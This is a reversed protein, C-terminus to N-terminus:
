IQKKTDNRNVHFSESTEGLFSLSIKEEAADNEAAVSESAALGRQLSKQQRKRGDLNLQLRSAVSGL